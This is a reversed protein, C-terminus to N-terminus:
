QPYRVVIVLFRSLLPLVLFLAGISAAFLISKRM